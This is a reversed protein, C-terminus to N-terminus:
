NFRLLLKSWSYLYIAAPIIGMLALMSPPDVIIEGPYRIGFSSYLVMGLCSMLVSVLFFGKITSGRFIHDAGPLIASLIASVMKQVQKHRRVQALKKGLMEANSSGRLTFSRHCQQCRENESDGEGGFVVGCNTCQRFKERLASSGRFVMMAIIGAIPWVTWLVAKPDTLFAPREPDHGPFLDNFASALAEQRSPNNRIPMAYTRNQASFIMSNFFYKYYGSTDLRAAEKLRGEAKETELRAFEVIALNILPEPARPDARQADAFADYAAEAKSQHHLAVGLNNLSAAREHSDARLSQFIHEAKEWERSQLAEWGKLFQQDRQPLAQMPRRSLPIIQPQLQLAEINTTNEGHIWTGELFSFAPVALQILVCFVAAACEAGTLYPVLLFLWLFATFSPDLGCIAPLSLLAAAAVAALHSGLGWSVVPQEFTRRLLNRYRLSLVIAVAWLTATAAFKIWALHSVAFFYGTTPTELRIQTLDVVSTVYKLYGETGEQRKLLAGTSMVAPNRPGWQGVLSLTRGAADTNGEKILERAWVCMAELFPTLDLTGYHRVLVDIGDAAGQIKKSDGSLLASKLSDVRHALAALSEVSPETKGATQQGGNTSQLPKAPTQVTGTVATGWLFLVGLVFPRFM